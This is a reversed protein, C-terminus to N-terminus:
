SCKCECSTRRHFAAAKAAISLGALLLPPMARPHGACVALAYSRRCSFLRVHARRGDLHRVLRFDEYAADVFSKCAADSEVQKLLLRCAFAVVSGLPPLRRPKGQALKGSSVSANARNASNDTSNAAAIRILDQEEVHKKFAQYVHRLIQTALATLEECDNVWLM